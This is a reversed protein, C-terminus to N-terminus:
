RLNREIEEMDPLLDQYRSMADISNSSLAALAPKLPSLYSDAAVRFDSIVMQAGNRDLCVRQGALWLTTIVRQVGASLTVLTDRLEKTNEIPRDLCQRAHLAPFWNTAFYDDDGHAIRNLTHIGTSSLRTNVSVRTEFAARGDPTGSLFVPFDASNTLSLIMKLSEDDIIRMRPEGQRTSTSRVRLTQIKFLNQIEDVILLGLFHSTCFQKWEAFYASARKAGNRRALLEAFRETHLAADTARMLSEVLDIAKGSAPTDVKLYVLQRLPRALNPFHEHDFTAPYASLTRAITRSKGTGSIAFVAGFLPPSSADSGLGGDTGYIRAWTSPETPDRRLYGHRLMIELSESIAHTQASPVYTDRLMFAHAMRMAKPLGAFQAPFKPLHILRRMFQAADPSAGLPKMLTPVPLDTDVTPHTKM